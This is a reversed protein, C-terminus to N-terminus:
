SRHEMQETALRVRLAEERDQEDLYLDLQGLETELRPLLREEIARRRRRTNLLEADLRRVAASTAAHQAAARLAQGYADAAPGLAATSGVRPRPGPVCDVRGPYVIGMSHQWDATFTAPDSPHDILTALEGSAGLLRARLLWTTADRCTEVWRDGTRAAYAELRVRERELAKEKSHLLDAAHHALETRRLLHLREARTAGATPATM